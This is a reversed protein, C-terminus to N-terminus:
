QTGRARKRAEANIIPGAVGTMNFVSQNALYNGRVASGAITYLVQIIIPM